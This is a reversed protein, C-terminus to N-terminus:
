PLQAWWWGPLRRYRLSGPSGSSDPVIRAFGVNTADGRVGATWNRASATVRLMGNGLSQLTVHTTEAGAAATSSAVVGRPLTLQGSDPSSDLLDALATGAAAQARAVAVDGRAIRLEQIAADLLLATLLATVMLMFLAVPLV